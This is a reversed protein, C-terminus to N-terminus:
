EASGDGVSVQKTLAVTISLTSVGDVPASMSSTSCLGEVGYYVKATGDSVTIAFALTSGAAESLEQHEVIAPDFALDLSFDAPVDLGKIKSAIDKGYVPYEIVTIASEIAGLDTVNPLANSLEDAFAKIEAQTEFTDNESSFSVTVETGQATAM